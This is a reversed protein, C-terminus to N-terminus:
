FDTNLQEVSIIRSTLRKVQEHAYKGNIKELSSILGDRETEKKIIIYSIDEPTFTLKHHKIKENLMVKARKINAENKKLERTITGFLMHDTKPDLVFRWEREDSFRYNNITKRGIRILDGQYNKIYRMFDLMYRDQELLDHIKDKGTSLHNFLHTFINDSLNSNKELYFVPNLGNKEAWDKKLGIGYCGYSNIHKSLQSFPIDCFSVMPILIDFKKSKSSINERCYRVDFNTSLIGKLATLNKTFHIISNSSLGMSLIKNNLMYLYYQCTIHKVIEHKM